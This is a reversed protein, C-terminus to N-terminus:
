KLCEKIDIEASSLTAEIHELGKQLVDPFRLLNDKIKDNDCFQILWDPNAENMRELVQALPLLNLLMSLSNAKSLASHVKLQAKDIPAEQGM